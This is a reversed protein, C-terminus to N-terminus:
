KGVKAPFNDKIYMNRQEIREKLNEIELIDQNYLDVLINQTKNKNRQSVFFLQLKILGWVVAKKEKESLKIENKKNKM